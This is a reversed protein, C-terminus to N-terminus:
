PPLRLLAAGPHGVGPCMVGLDWPEASFLPATQTPDKGEPPQQPPGCPAPVEWEGPRLVVAERRVACGGPIFEVSDWSFGGRGVAQGM